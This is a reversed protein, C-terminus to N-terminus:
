NSYACIKPRYRKQIFKKSNNEVFKIDPDLKANLPVWKKHMKEVVKSALYPHFPEFFRFIYQYFEM